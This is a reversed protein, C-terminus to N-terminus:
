LCFGEVTVRRPYSDVIEAGKRANDEIFDLGSIM